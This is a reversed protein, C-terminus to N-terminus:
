KETQECTKVYTKKEMKRKNRTQRNPGNYKLKTDRAWMRYELNTYFNIIRKM